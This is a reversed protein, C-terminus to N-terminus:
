PDFANLNTIEVSGVMLERRQTYAHHPATRMDFNQLVVNMVNLLSKLAAITRSTAPVCKANCHVPGIGLSGDRVQDDIAILHM